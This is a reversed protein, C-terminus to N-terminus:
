RNAVGEGTADSPAPAGTERSLTQAMKRVTLWRWPALLVSAVAVNTAGAQIYKCADDLCTVGGGGIVNALLIGRDLAMDKVERVAQLSLAQLPKGSLGGNGTPLTNCCHFRTIGEELAMHALHRYGVPPLKVIVPIFSKRACIEFASKFVEGYDKTRDEGPCNPCSLNLEVALPRLAVADYFLHWWDSEDFGAISLIKDSAWFDPTPNSASRDRYRRERTWDRLSQIGPNPLGLRNKWARIGPYYRLTLLMRWLRKLVGGRYGRTYTGITRTSNKFGVWNGFPASIILRHM